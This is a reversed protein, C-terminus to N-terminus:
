LHEHHLFAFLRVLDDIDRLILVEDDGQQQDRRVSRQRDVHQFVGSTCRFHFGQRFERFREEQQYADTL